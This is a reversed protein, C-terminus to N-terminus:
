TEGMRAVNGGMMLENKVIIICPSPQMDDSRVIHDLRLARFKYDHFTSLEIIPETASPVSNRNEVTGGLLHLPLVYILV